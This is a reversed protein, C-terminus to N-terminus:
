QYLTSMDRFLDNLIKICNQIDYLKSLKNRSVRLWSNMRELGPVINVINLCFASSPFLIFYFCYSCLVWTSPLPLIFLMRSPIKVSCMSFIWAIESNWPLVWSITAINPQQWDLLSLQCSESPKFHCCLKLLRSLCQLFCEFNSIRTLVVGRIKICREWFHTNETGLSKM